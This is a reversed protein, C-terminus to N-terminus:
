IVTQLLRDVTTMAAGFPDTVDDRLSASDPNPARLEGRVAKAVLQDFNDDAVAYALGREV